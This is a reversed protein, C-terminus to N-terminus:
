RLEKYNRKLQEVRWRGLQTIRVGNMNVDGPILADGQWSWAGRPVYVTGEQSLQYLAELFDDVQRSSVYYSYVEQMESSLALRLLVVDKFLM